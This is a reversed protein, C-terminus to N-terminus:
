SPEERRLREETGRQVVLEALRHGDGAIEEDCDACLEVKRLGDTTVVEVLFAVWL